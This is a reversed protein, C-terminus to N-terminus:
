ADEVELEVEAIGESEDDIIGNRRVIRKTMDNAGAGEDTCYQLEDGVAPVIPASFELLLNGEEFVRMKM